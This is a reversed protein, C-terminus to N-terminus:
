RVVNMVDHPEGGEAFQAKAQRRFYNWAKDYYSNRVVWMMSLDAPQKGMRIVESELFSSTSFSWCTGSKNQNKVPTVDLKKEVSFQYKSDTNNTVFDQATLKGAFMGAMALYLLKLKM